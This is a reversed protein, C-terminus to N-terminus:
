KFIEQNDSISNNDTVDSFYISLVAVLAIFITQLIKKKIDKGVENLYLHRLQKTTLKKAM